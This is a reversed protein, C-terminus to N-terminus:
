CKISLTNKPNLSNDKLIKYVIMSVAAAFFCWVSVFTHSYFYDAILYGLTVLIGCIWMNKLSSLFCPFLVIFLYIWAQSPAQGSYQLQHNVIQVSIDQNLAYFLNIMALVLGGALDLYMLSRRWKVKEITALALPIWIPWILFSLSLSIHQAHIFLRSTGIDEHLYLWLLGEALQQIAFLFPIVAFLIQTRSLCSRLTAGGTAGLIVAATFSAETSFCM